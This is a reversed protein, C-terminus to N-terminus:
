CHVYDAQETTYPKILKKDRASLKSYDFEVADVPSQNKSLPDSPSQM